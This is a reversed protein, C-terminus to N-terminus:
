TTYVNDNLFNWYPEEVYEFNYFENQSIIHRIYKINEHDKHQDIFDYYLDHEATLLDCKQYVINPAYRSFYQQMASCIFCQYNKCSSCQSSYQFPDCSFDQYLRQIKDDQLGNYIDGLKYDQFYPHSQGEFVPCPHIDGDVNIHLFKGLYRCLTKRYKQIKFLGDPSFENDKFWIMRELNDFRVNSPYMLYLELIKTLQDIFINIFFPNSYQEHEYLYYYYFRYLNNDLLFKISEYFTDVTEPIVGVRIIIAQSYPQQGLKQLEINTNIPPDAIRYKLYGNIGDWSINVNYPFYLKDEILQIIFDADTGNSILSHNLRTQKYRLLKNIQKVANHMESIPVTAIEGGMLLIETKNPDYNFQNLFKLLQKYDKFVKSNYKNKDQQFCFKCNLPCQGTIQLNIIDIKDFVQQFSM